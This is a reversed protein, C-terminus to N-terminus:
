VVKAVSTKSFGNAVVGRVSTDWLQISDPPWAAARRKPSNLHLLTQAKALPTESNPGGSQSPAAHVQMM